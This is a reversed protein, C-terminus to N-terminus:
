REDGTVVYYIGVAIVLVGAFMNWTVKEQFILMGFLMSWLMTMARNAYATTLPVRKLFQQWALAYLAIIVLAGGYLGIWAWSLIPHQSALKELVSSCSFVLVCLQLLAILKWNAKPKHGDQVTKGAATPQTTLNPQEM